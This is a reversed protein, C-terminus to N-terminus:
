QVVHMRHSDPEPLTCGIMGIFKEMHEVDRSLQDHREKRATKTHFKYKTLLTYVFQWYSCDSIDINGITRLESLYRQSFFFEEKTGINDLDADQIIEQLLTRPKSFLVTAMIIGEIKEIREVPYEHAELWRRAIKVGIFENKSYQETFGTDHFLCSLQLDEMDEGDVNEALAIYTARDYVGLTHAPNHYPYNECKRLIDLVYSRAQDILRM